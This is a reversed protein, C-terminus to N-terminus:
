AMYSDGDERVIVVPRPSMLWLMSMVVIFAPLATLFTQAPVAVIKWMLGEWGVTAIAHGLRPACPSLVVTFALLFGAEVHSSNAVLKWERLTGSGGACGREVALLICAVTGVCGVGIGYQVAKADWAHSGMADSYYAPINLFLM